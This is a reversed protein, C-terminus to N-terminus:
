YIVLLIFAQRSLGVKGIARFSQEGHIETPGPFLVILHCVTPFPVGIAHKEKHTKASGGM